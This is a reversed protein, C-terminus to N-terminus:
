RGHGVGAHCTLCDTPDASTRHSILTVLDGHCDLCSEQTVSRNLATIRIPEPFGGFTFARSHNWGNLGKIAYKAFISSHPTHCDNCGAVAKHSGHNWGDYVDRMVHCNACAKPDDSLYAFGQAYSFTFGGLGIIGGLLLAGALWVWFPVSALFRGVAQWLAMTGALVPNM